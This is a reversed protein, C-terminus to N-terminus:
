LILYDFSWMNPIATNDAAGYFEQAPVTSFTIDRSENFIFRENNYFSIADSIAFSIQSTLDTRQGLEDAIRAKMQALDNAM